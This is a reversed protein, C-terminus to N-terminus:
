VSAVIHGHRRPASIRRVGFGTPRCLEALNRQAQILRRTTRRTTRLDRASIGRARRVKQSEQMVIQALEVASIGLAASAASLGLVRTGKMVKKASLFQNAATFLGRIRGTAGVVLSGVMRLAGGALPAIPFAAEQFQGGAASPIMGTSMVSVGNGFGTRMMGGPMSAAPPAGALPPSIYRGLAGTLSGFAGTVGGTEFGTRAATVAGSVFPQTAFAIAAAPAAPRGAVRAGIAGGIAAGAPGGYIGGVVPAVIGAVKRLSKGFGM